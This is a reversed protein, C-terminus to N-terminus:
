NKNQIRLFLTISDAKTICSAAGTVNDSIVFIRDKEDMTIGEINSSYKKKTYANITDSIDMLKKTEKFLPKGMTDIPIVDIHYTGFKTKLALIRSKESDYYIDTYRWEVNELMLPFKNKRKFAPILKKEDKSIKATFIYACTDKKVREVLLYFVQNKENYAIGEYGDNEGQKYINYADKFLNIIDTKKTELNTKYVIKNYEDISYLNDEWITIGEIQSCDKTKVDIIQSSDKNESNIKLIASCRELAIYFIGKNYIIGSASIEKDFMAIDYPGPDEVRKSHSTIITILIITFYISIQKM